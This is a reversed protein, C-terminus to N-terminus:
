AAAKLRGMIRDHDIFPAVMSMTLDLAKDRLEMPGEVLRALVPNVEKGLQELMVREADRVLSEAELKPCNGPKKPHYGHAAVAAEVMKVYYGFQSEPMVWDHKPETIRVPGPNGPHLKDQFYECVYFAHQALVEAKCQDVVGGVLDLWAKALFLTEGVRIMDASPGNRLDIM